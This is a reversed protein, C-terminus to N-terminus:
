IDSIISYSIIIWNIFFSFENNNFGSNKQFQLSSFMNNLDLLKGDSEMCEDIRKNMKEIDFTM